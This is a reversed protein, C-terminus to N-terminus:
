GSLEILQRVGVVRRVFVVTVHEDECISLHNVALEVVDASVPLRDHEVREAAVADGIPAANRGAFDRTDVDRRGGRAVDVM